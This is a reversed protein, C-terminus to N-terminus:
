NMMLKIIMICVEAKRKMTRERETEVILQTREENCTPSNIGREREKEREGRRSRQRDERENREKDRDECEEGEGEEEGEAVLVCM